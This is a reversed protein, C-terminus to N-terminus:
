PERCPNGSERPKQEKDYDVFSSLQSESLTAGLSALYQDIKDITYELDIVLNYNYREMNLKLIAHVNCARIDRMVEVVDRIEKNTM